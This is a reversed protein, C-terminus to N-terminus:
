LIAEDSLRAPRAGRRGIPWWSASRRAGCSARAIPGPILRGAPSIREARHGVRTDDAAIFRLRRARRVAVESVAAAPASERATAAAGGFSVAAFVAPARAYLSQGDTRLS